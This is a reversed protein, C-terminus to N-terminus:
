KDSSGVKNDVSTEGALTHGARPQVQFIQPTGQVSQEFRCDRWHKTYIGESDTQRGCKGENWPSGVEGGKGDIPLYVWSRQLACGKSAHSEFSMHRTEDLTLAPETECVIREDTSLYPIVNCKTGDLDGLRVRIQAM